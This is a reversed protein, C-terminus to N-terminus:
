PLRVKVGCEKELPLIVADVGKDAFGAVITDHLDEKVAEGVPLPIGYEKGLDLALGIDKYALGVRFGPEFDGKFTTRPYQQMCWNNGTSTSIIEWLTQPDIGGKVGLVFGEASISNCALSIMNNVLKAVNGCGADGVHFIKQGMTLLVERIKKIAAPDGGVMITLTGAEAGKTGGSVPADLVSVGAKRADGAIKRILSPSNTSMDVYIDGKKWGKSLGNEGYVVEEISKPTPLSSFFIECSEAVEKPTDGWGAGKKLLPAAAEKQLDHVTLDYGADLIRRSMHKGMQGIGIFGTKM